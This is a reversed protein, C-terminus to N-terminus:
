IHNKQEAHETTDVIPATELPASLTLSLHLHHLARQPYGYSPRVTILQPFYSSKYFLILPPISIVLPPIFLLDKMGESSSFGVNMCWPASSLQNKECRAACMRAM